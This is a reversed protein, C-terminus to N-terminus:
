RGAGVRIRQEDGRLAARLRAGARRRRGVAAAGAGAGAGGAGCVGPALGDRRGLRDTPPWIRCRSTAICRNRPRARANAGCKCSQARSRSGGADRPAADYAPSKSREPNHSGLHPNNLGREPNEDTNHETNNCQTTGIRGRRKQAGWTAPAATCELHACYKHHCPHRTSGCRAACGRAAREVAARQGRM